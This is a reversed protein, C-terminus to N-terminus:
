RSRPRAGAPRPAAWRSGTPSNLLITASARPIGRNVNGPVSAVWKLGAARAAGRQEEAASDLLLAPLGIVRNPSDPFRLFVSNPCVTAGRHHSLYADAVVQLVEARHAQLVSRVVDEPYIAIESDRQSTMLGSFSNGVDSRRLGAAHAEAVSDHKPDASM